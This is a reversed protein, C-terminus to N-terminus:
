SHSVNNLFVPSPPLVAQAASVLIPWWLLTLSGAWSTIGTLPKSRQLVLDPICESQPDQRSSICIQRVPSRLHLSKGARCGLKGVGLCSASNCGWRSHLSEEPGRPGSLCTAVGPLQTAWCCELGSPLLCLQHGGSCLWYLADLRGPSCLPLPILEYGLSLTAGLGEWCSLRNPFNLTAQLPGVWEELALPSLCLGVWLPSHRGSQFYSRSVKIVLPM